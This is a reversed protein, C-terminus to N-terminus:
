LRPNSHTLDACDALSSTPGDVRQSVLRSHYITGVDISPLRNEPRHDGRIFKQRKVHWYSFRGIAVMGFVSGVSPIRLFSTSIRGLYNPTGIDLHRSVSISSLSVSNQTQSLISCISPNRSRRLYLTETAMPLPLICPWFSSWRITVWCEPLHLLFAKSPVRITM